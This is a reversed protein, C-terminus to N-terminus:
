KVSALVAEASKIAALAKVIAEATSPPVPAMFTPHWDDAYVLSLDAHFGLAAAGMVQVAAPTRGPTFGPVTAIGDLRAIWHRFPRQGAETNVQDLTSRNCYVAAGRHGLSVQRDLWSPVATAGASHAEVDLVTAVNAPDGLGRDIWVVGSHRGLLLQELQPTHLDAYTALLEAQVALQTPTDTDLMVRITM